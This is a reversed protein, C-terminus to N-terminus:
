RRDRRARRSGRGTTTRRLAAASRRRRTRARRPAAPRPHRRTGACTSARRRAAPKRGSIQADRTNPQPRAPIQDPRVANMSTRRTATPHRAREPAQATGPATRPQRGVTRWARAGCEARSPPSRPRSRLVRVVASLAHAPPSRARRRLVRTVPRARGGTGRADQPDSTMAPPPSAGTAPRPDAGDSGPRHDRGRNRARFRNGRVGHRDRSCSRGRPHASGPVRRRGGEAQERLVASFGRLVPSAWSARPSRTRGLSRARGLLVRVDRYFACRPLSRARRRLVRTVPRARGGTGRADQPDGTVAPRRVPGEPRALRAPGAGVSGPRHDRRRRAGPIPERTRWSSRPLVIWRASRPPHSPGVCTSAMAEGNWVPM